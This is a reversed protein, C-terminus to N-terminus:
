ASYKGAISTSVDIASALNTRPSLVPSLDITDWTVTDLHLAVLEGILGSSSGGGYMWMQDRGVDLVATQGWRGSVGGTSIETWAPAGAKTPSACAACCWALAARRM